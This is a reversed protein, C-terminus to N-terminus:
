IGANSKFLCYVTQLKPSFASIRQDSLRLSLDAPRELLGTLEGHTNEPWQVVECFPDGCSFFSIHSSERVTNRSCVIM